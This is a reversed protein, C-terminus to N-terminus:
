LTCAGAPCPCCLMEGAGAVGADQGPANGAAMYRAYVGSILTAYTGGPCNTTTGAGFAVFNGCNQASQMVDSVYGDGANNFTYNLTGGSGGGVTGEAYVDWTHVGGGWGGPYGSTPSFGNTGIRGDVNLGLAGAGNAGYVSMQNNGDNILRVNFDQAGVGGYHFDIYPVGVGPTGNNGGLELSGGQDSQILSENGFVLEYGNAIQANGVTYTPGNVYMRATSAGYVVPPPANTGVDLFSAPNDRAMYANSTAVLQTYVGSPAPYYTTLTVSESALEPAVALVMAAVMIGRVARSGLKLDFRVIVESM